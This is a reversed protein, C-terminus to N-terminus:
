HFIMLFGGFAAGVLTREATQGGASLTVAVSTGKEIQGLALWGQAGTFGATEDTVPTGGVSLATTGAPVPMMCNGYAKAWRDPSSGSICRTAGETGAMLGYPLGIRAKQETGNNFVLSLEYVDERSVDEASPLSFTFDSTTINEYVHLYKSGRVTLTASTAGDKFCVPVTLTGNTATHWFSGSEKFLLLADGTDSALAAGALAVGAALATMKKLTM